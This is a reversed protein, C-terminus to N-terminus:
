VLFLFEKKVYYDNKKPKVADQCNFKTAVQDIKETLKEMFGPKLVSLPIMGQDVYYQNKAKM